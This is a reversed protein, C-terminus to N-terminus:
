HGAAAVLLITTDPDINEVCFSMKYIQMTRTFEENRHNERGSRSWSNM